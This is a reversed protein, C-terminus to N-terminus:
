STHIAIISQTRRANYIEPGFKPRLVEPVIWVGGKKGKAKRDLHHVSLCGMWIGCRVAAKASDDPVIPAASEELRELVREIAM